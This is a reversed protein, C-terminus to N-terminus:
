IGGYADDDDYLTYTTDPRKEQTVQKAPRMVPVTPTDPNAPSPSTPFHAEIPPSPLTFAASLPSPQVSSPAIPFDMTVPSFSRENM